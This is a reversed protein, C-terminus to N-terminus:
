ELRRTGAPAPRGCRRRRDQQEGISEMAVIRVLRHPVLGGVDGPADFQQATGALPRELQRLIGTRRAVLRRLRDRQRERRTTEGLPLDGILETYVM